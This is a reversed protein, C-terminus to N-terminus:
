KNAAKFANITSIMSSDAEIAKKFLREAEEFKKLKYKVMGLNITYVLINPYERKLNEYHFEATKYDALMFYNRGLVDEGIRDKKLEFSRKNYQLAKKPDAYMLGYDGLYILGLTNNIEITNSDKSYALNLNDLAEQTHGTYLNVDAINILYDYSGKEYCNAALRSYYISSDLQKMANFVSSINNYIRARADTSLKPNKAAERFSMLSKDYQGSNLESLAQKNKQYADSEITKQKCFTLTSILTLLILNKM